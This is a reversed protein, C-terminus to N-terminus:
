KYLQSKFILLYMMISKVKIINYAANCSKLIRKIHIKKKVENARVISFKFLYKHIKKLQTNASSILSNYIHIDDDCKTFMYLFAHKRALYDIVM